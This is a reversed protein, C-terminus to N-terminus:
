KRNSLDKRLKSLNEDLAPDGKIKLLSMGYMTDFPINNNAKDQYLETMAQSVDRIQYPFWNIVCEKFKKEAEQASPPTTQGAMVANLCLIRFASVMGELFVSRERDPMATWRTGFDRVTQPGSAAASPSSSLGVPTKDKKQAFAQGALSLVLVLAILLAKRAM